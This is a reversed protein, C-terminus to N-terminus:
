IVVKAAGAYASQIVPARLWLSMNGILAVAPDIKNEDRAKRPYVNDKADKKAVVNGIAWALVPDGNHRIRGAVILADLEKMPESFNIVNHPVDIMKAGAAQLRTTLHGANYNPDVGVHRPRFRRVDAQVDREVFDYDTINGPTLTLWGESVWGRYFDYNPLGPEVAEEPLYYKGFVAYGPGRRFVVIKATLDRKSALDLTIMCQQGICDEIRLKPDRCLQDWALMNFYASAAGVRVNLRKTLFSAQSDANTVAQKCRIELDKQFVSVGMNPNAKLWSDPATWSDEPDITYIVSFYTDDEHRSELIAKAYDV